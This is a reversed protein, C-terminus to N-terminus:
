FRCHRLRQEHVAKLITHAPSSFHHRESPQVHCTRSICWSWVSVKATAASAKCMIIELGNRRKGETEKCMERRIFSRVAHQLCASCTEGCVVCDEFELSYALSHRCSTAVTAVKSTVMGGKKREPYLQMCRGATPDRSGYGEVGLLLVSFVAVPFMRIMTQNMSVDSATSRRVKETVNDAPQEWLVRPKMQLCIKWGVTGVTTWDAELSMM